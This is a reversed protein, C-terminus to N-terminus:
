DVNNKVFALSEPATSQENWDSHQIVHIRQSVPLQPWENQVAKILAATFNSQGAEAIWIDGQNELIPKVITMVRKVAVLMNNHADTWNDGFALQFLTNPPVYLGDQIGYTGAVAHYKIGIFNSDSLLTVFAAVTHLDDVDTKCDFQILLLDSESNFRSAQSDSKDNKCSVSLLIFVLLFVKSKILNM